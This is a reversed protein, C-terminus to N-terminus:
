KIAAAGEQTTISAGKNKHGLLKDDPGYGPQRQNCWACLRATGLNIFLCQCDWARGHPQTNNSNGANDATTFETVVSSSTGAEDPVTTPPENNKAQPDEKMTLECEARPKEYWFCVAVAEPYIFLCQCDWAM